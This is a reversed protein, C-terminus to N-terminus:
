MLLFFNFDFIIIFYNKLRYVVIDYFIIFFDYLIDREVFM